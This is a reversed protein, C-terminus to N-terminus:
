VADAVGFRRAIAVLERVRAASPGAEPGDIAEYVAVLLQARDPPALRADVDPFGAAVAELALALREVDFRGQPDRRPKGVYYELGLVECLARLRPVSPVQGRRMNSVLNPSGIAMISAQRASWGREALAEDIIKLLDEM